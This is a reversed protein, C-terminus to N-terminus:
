FTASPSIALDRPLVHVRSAAARRDPLERFAHPAVLHRVRLRQGELGQEQSLGRRGGLAGDAHGRGHRVPRVDLGQDLTEADAMDADERTMVHPADWDSTIGPRDSCLPLYCGNRGPSIRAAMLRASTEGNGNRLAPMDGADQISGVRGRCEEDHSVIGSRAHVV